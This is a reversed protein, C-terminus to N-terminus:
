KQFCEFAPPVWRNAVREGEGGVSETAGGNEEIQGKEAELKERVLMLVVPRKARRQTQIYIRWALDVLRPDEMYKQATAMEWEAITEWRKGAQDGLMLQRMDNIERISSPPGRCSLANNLRQYLRAQRVCDALDPRKLRELASILLLEVPTPSNNALSRGAADLYMEHPLSFAENKTTAYSWEWDLVGTIKGGEDSFYQRLWDDGHKIYFEKEERDLEACGMVLERVEVLWMYMHIQLFGGHDLALLYVYDLAHDILTLYREKQTRFPGLFYPPHPDMLYSHTCLPGVTFSGDGKRYLSGIGRAPVPTNSITIFYHALDEIYRDIVPSIAMKDKMPNVFLASGEVFEMFFYDIVTEGAERGMNPPIWAMPVKVGNAKLFQLTAVESETIQMQLAAPPNSARWQRVRVMWKVGDDFVLPLHLNMNSTRWKDDKFIYDLSPITLICTHGPRLAQAQEVILRSDLWALTYQFLLLDVCTHPKGMPPDLSHQQCTIVSCMRCTTGEGLAPNTCNEVHCTKSIFYAM